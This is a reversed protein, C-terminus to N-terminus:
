WTVTATGARRAHYAMRARGFEGFAWVVATARGRTVNAVTESPAVLLREFTVSQSRPGTADSSVTVACGSRRLVSVAEGYFRRPKPADYADTYMEEFAFTAGGDASSSVVMDAGPMGHGGPRHVGLAM